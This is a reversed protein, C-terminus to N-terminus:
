HQQNIETLSILRAFSKFDDSKQKPESNSSEHLIPILTYFHNSHVTQDTMGHVVFKVIIFGDHAKDNVSAFSNTMSSKNM